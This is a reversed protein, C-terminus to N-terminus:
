TRIKAFFVVDGIGNKVITKWIWMYHCVACLYQYSNSDLLIVLRRRSSTGSLCLLNAAATVAFTAFWRINIKRLVYVLQKSNNKKGKTRAYAGAELIANFETLFKRWKWKIGNKWKIKEVFNDNACKNVSENKRRQNKLCAIAFQENTQMWVFWCVFNYIWFSITLDFIATNGGSGTNIKRCFSIPATFQM